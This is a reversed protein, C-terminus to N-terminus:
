QLLRAVSQSSSNAQAALALRPQAQLLLRAHQTAAAAQAQDDISPGAAMLNNPDIPGAQAPSLSLSANIPEPTPASTQAQQDLGILGGNAHPRASAGPNAKFPEPLAQTPITCHYIM